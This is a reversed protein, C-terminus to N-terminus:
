FLRLVYVALVTAVGRSMAPARLAVQVEDMQERPVARLERPPLFTAGHGVQRSDTAHISDIEVRKEPSRNHGTTTPPPIGAGRETNPQTPLQSGTSNPKDRTQPAARGTTTGRLQAELEAIRIQQVRSAEQLERNDAEKQRVTEAVSRMSERYTLFGNLLARYEESIKALAKTLDEVTHRLEELGKRSLEERRETLIQQQEKKAEELETRYFAEKESISGALDQGVATDFLIKREEVMERQVSLPRSPTRLADRLIRHASPVTGEHAVLQAGDDLALRFAAEHAALEEQRRAALDHAVVDWMTTVITVNRLNETGCLKRFRRFNSRAMGGIRSDSIRHFYLIADM